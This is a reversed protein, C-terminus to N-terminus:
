LQFRQRIYSYLFEATTEIGMHSSNICLDYSRAEGWKGTSYYDHYQRRRKDGKAIIEAAEERSAKEREMVRKIREASDATIFISVMNPHERLVYEACRGVIICSEKQALERIADSQIAFLQDNDMCSGGSLVNALSGPISFMNGIFSHSEREDANEFVTTDLGSERAAVELLKKDYLKICLRAALIEAIEKGGSGLERGIAIVINKM